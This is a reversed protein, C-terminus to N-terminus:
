DSPADSEPTEGSHRPLGDDLRLWAPKSATWIHRRAPFRDADDLTALTVDLADPYDAHLFTVQAGCDPCFGRTGPRSSQWTRLNGKTVTFATPPVTFWTVFMAGSARRCMTCHCHAVDDIPAAVRYRIGGCLCGGEHVGESM